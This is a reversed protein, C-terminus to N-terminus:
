KNSKEITNKRSLLKAMEDKYRVFGANRDFLYRYTIHTKAQIAGIAEYIARMKPNFDGVWSLELEKYYSKKRFVNFLYKFIASEIGSNQYKPDVGAVVARMRTMEHTYKYYFFKMISWLNLTGNLHKLIQNLDPLLIFFAIPKENHYAFWILEEDIFLKSKKFSERIEDPDMPTFDEKFTSWTSNYIEVMDAIFDETEKFSFHKFRYGSKKSVWEAIKMFRDPFVKVVSLDKHYSYQEFYNKFGYDEFLERYYPKNYPMGFGPHTFGEVLLGWYNDNEGFNIPGDMAEMGREMLWEKAKDFLFFAAEKNDVSEFFGIGGTPQRNVDARKKVHFAAIRGILKGKDDKLVWRSADGDKFSSNKQPDFISEIQNDLPCVWINDDKYLKKPVKLFEKKEKSTKVEIIQM